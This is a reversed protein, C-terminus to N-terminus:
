FFVAIDCQCDVVSQLTQLLVIVVIVSLWLVHSGKRGGRQSKHWKHAGVEKRDLGSIIRRGAEDGQRDNGITGSSPDVFSFSYLLTSFDNIPPRPTGKVYSIFGTEVWLIRQLWSKCTYYGQYCWPAHFQFFTSVQRPLENFDGIALKKYNSDDSTRSTSSCTCYPSLNVKGKSTSQLKWREGRISIFHSFDSSRPPWM